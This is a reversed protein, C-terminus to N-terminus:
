AAPQPPALSQAQIQPHAELRDWVTKDLEERAPLHRIREIIEGAFAHILMRRATEAGVGRSRLYFISEDNLQGITAGHTCKVDDAYIELQPKTDVTADESLLLNKNTQKADTKQAGPQVLIRGHFVGKSKGDLIGNFYEHSNCHPQAHEVVMHHDALQDGHTLYLGNLVCEVGEGSLHTRINNRSLRAGAAISHSIVNSGRDLHAHLAAVHFAGLGEQQVKCHEVVAGQGAILHTVANTVYAADGLSAYTELVTLRSNAGAVIVNRPHAATGPEHATSLFVLHIPPEVEAGGPAIIFAGDRFFATNLSGFADEAEVVRGAVNQKVLEEHSSMAAALNTVVLGGQVSVPAGASLRPAYIGNIFVLRTARLRGFTLQQLIGADVGDDSPSFAPKFPLKALPAVSTFRWDEDKVTPFGSASFRALGAKRWPLLWAPQRTEQEYAKFKSIYTDTNQM